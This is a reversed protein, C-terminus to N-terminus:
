APVELAHREADPLAVFICRRVPSMLGSLQLVVVGQDIQARVIRNGDDIQQFGNLRRYVEKSNILRFAVVPFSNTPSCVSLYTSM